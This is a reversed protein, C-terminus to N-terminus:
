TGPGVLPGGADAGALAQDLLRLAEQFRLGHIADGLAATPAAGLVGRLAPELAAFDRVASLYRGRLKVRLAELQGADLPPAKSGAPPAPNAAAGLWPASAASLATLQRALSALGAALDTEGRALADELAGATAMLELAGLNGANGRLTHMRRIASERDGQALEQHLHAVADTFQTVFGALLRLFFARDGGLTRAASVRDIGPITPFDAPVAESGGGAPAPQSAPDPAWHSLVAVLRELDLPKTLVEDAGADRAARQQEPLVGATFAIVPLNTLGLEGRILRTAILGDMVPMQIDMLVADFAAHSARLLQVAQQGDAALTTLAGELGLAREVVDRNLASDDVVLVRLGTLRPGAPRPPTSGPESVSEGAAARALPLEFWFTSGAGAQSKAGIEGGMLEVLRKSIALGLGTGGFRRGNDAEAQTFPEFLGALAAPAIGIGTDWVECRLRIRTADDGRGDGRTAVRIVVEGAETFKIANGTLNVLVQELRLGDGLLWGPTMAPGEVRLALGKARAAQGLLSDLKTLLTELTFPRPQLRLQGAEIKSLDLVDNIIGLLSQGASQIRGVMDAQNATLPERDLVQALGLVANLPTRMEHSMHALFESKARNAAEAAERAQRLAQEHRNRETIDVGTALLREIAGNAAVVPALQFDITIIEGGMNVAVDYRSTEGHRAQDIAAILRTQVQEDYSWWPTASFHRGIVAERRYGGRELPARNVDQVVGQTDLLAVYAFLHDLMVRIWRHSEIVARETEGAREMLYGLLDDRAPLTKLTNEASM